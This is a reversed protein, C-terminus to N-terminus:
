QININVRINCTIYYDFYKFITFDYGFLRNKDQSATHKINFDLM